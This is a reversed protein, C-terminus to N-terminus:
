VAAEVVQDCVAKVEEACFTRAVLWRCQWRAPMRRRSERMEREERGEEESGDADGQEDEM